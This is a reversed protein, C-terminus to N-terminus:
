KWEFGTVEFRGYFGGKQPRFRGLGIFCGAIECFERLVDNTVAEDLVTIETTGGWERIMPFCKMVRKGGGRVGDSPVHYWEGIIDDDTAGLPIQEVVMIGSLLRKTYTSKGKGPITMGSFKAADELSRKIAMPNLVVQGSSNLEMRERWTRKEFDQHKEGRTKETTIFKSQSYPSIGSFTMIATHM